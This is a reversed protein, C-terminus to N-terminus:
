FHDLSLIIEYIRQALKHFYQQVEIQLLNMDPPENEGSSEDIYIQSFTQILNSSFFRSFTQILILTHATNLNLTIRATSRLKKLRSM